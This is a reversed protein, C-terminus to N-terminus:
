ADVVIEKFKTWNESVNNETFLRSWNVSHFYTNLKDYDGHYYDFHKEHYSPCAPDNYCVYSWSLVHVEHDSHGVPPLHSIEMIMTPDSTFALDM